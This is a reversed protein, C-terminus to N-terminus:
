RLVTVPAIGLIDRMNIKIMCCHPNEVKKVIPNAAM